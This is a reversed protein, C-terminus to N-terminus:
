TMIEEASGYLTSTTCAGSTNLGKHQFTYATSSTTNPSDIFNLACTGDTQQNTGSGSVVGTNNQPGVATGARAITCVVETNVGAGGAAARTQGSYSLKVFNAASTPVLTITSGTVNTFTTSTVSSGALSYASGAQVIQGPLQVGPGFNQVQVVNTTTWTGATVGSAGWEIFGLISFAKSTVATGTYFVQASDAGGAGGEATSSAIGRPSLPAITAQSSAYSSALIVGPRLTGADDFMVVWLRFATSSTVGLTSGSSIVLSSAASLTRWTLSGTTATASRFPIFAPNTASCDNGDAGKIAITLAGAAASVALSINYAVGYGGFPITPMTLSNLGSVNNSDDVIIGSNQLLKGTTSDFRALANDTSSAPGVVDGTGSGTAAITTDTIALGTGVTLWTVAGASDDWFMIRDANPDALSAGTGGDALPVDTGGARYVLNGEISVNGASSRALTTDSAHGLEITGATHTASTSNVTVPVGEVAVVGASSRSLTTDSAHGLEITTASLAAVGSVNASDDVTVGSDQVLKGTTGDYRAIANDTASAPGVVDGSGAGAASLTTDTISLGAGVTLWTVAGASDDWFMVRDANPDALSAGTGGDALPVDTGGARYVLNGEVALNGASARSLTTDSAHGLEITTSSLAAVGSMNDSDDVTIGTGQIKKTDTGDTRVLRNDTAGLGGTYASETLAAEIDDLLTNWDSEEITTGEVAPNWSSTPATYTGSSRSM